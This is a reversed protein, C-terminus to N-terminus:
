ALHYNQVVLMLTGPVRMCRKAHSRVYVASCSRGRPACPRAVYQSSQCVAALVVSHCQSNQLVVCCSGQKRLQRQLGKNLAELMRCTELQRVGALYVAVVFRPSEHKRLGQRCQKSPCRFQYASGDSGRSALGSFAIAMLWGARLWCLAVCIFTSAAGAACSDSFYCLTGPRAVAACNHVVGLRM